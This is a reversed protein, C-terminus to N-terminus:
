VKVSKAWKIFTDFCADYNKTECSFQVLWFADHSQYVAGLYSFSKGEVNVDYEFYSLGDKEKLVWDSKNNTQVMKFYDQMSIDGSSIGYADRILDFEDKLMFVVYKKANYYVDYVDSDQGEKFENTLTITMDDYSFTKEQPARHPYIDHIGLQIIVAMIIIPIIINRRGQRPSATGTGVSASQKKQKAKNILHEILYYVGTGLAVMLMIFIIKWDM